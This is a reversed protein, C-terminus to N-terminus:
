QFFPHIYIIHLCYYLASIREISALYIYSMVLIVMNPHDSIESSIYLSPPDRASAKFRLGVWPIKLRGPVGKVKESEAFLRSYAHILVKRSLKHLKDFTAVQGSKAV